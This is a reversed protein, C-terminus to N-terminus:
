HEYLSVLLSQEILENIDEITVWQYSETDITEPDVQEFASFGLDKTFLDVTGPETREADM